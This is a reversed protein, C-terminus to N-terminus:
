RSQASASKILLTKVGSANRLDKAKGDVDVKIREANMATIYLSEKTKFEKVTGAPMPGVYLATRVSSDKAYESALYISVSTDATSSVTYSHEVNIPQAPAAPLAEQTQAVPQNVPAVDPNINDKPAASFISILLIVVVFLGVLVAGIKVYQSKFISANQEFSQNTQSQGDPMTDSSEDYRITTDIPEDEPQSDAYSRLKVPRSFDKRFINGSLRSYEAVIANQDLKLFQAYLRVFGRKYVEPLDFSFNGEEINQLVDMRIKTIDSADRLSIGRATRAEHFQLGLNKM